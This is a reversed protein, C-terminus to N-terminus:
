AEIIIKGNNLYYEMPYDWKDNETHWKYREIAELIGAYHKGNIDGGYAGIVLAKESMEYVMPQNICEKEVVLFTFPEVSYGQEILDKIPQYSRIGKDYFTGQFDYRYNWFNKQFETIEGSMTKIDLPFIKKTHHDITILDGEGKFEIGKFTFEFIPKKIVQVSKTETLYYKTYENSKLAGAAIIAKSYDEESIIVKNASEQLIKFYSSGAEVIKAFVTDAKWNSQYKFRAAVELVPGKHDELEGSDSYENFITNIMDMVTDSPKEVNKMVYFVDLFELDETLMHDVAKGFIFQPAISEVIGNEEDILRQIFRDKSKVFSQPSKLIQKLLSQNMKDLHQYSM